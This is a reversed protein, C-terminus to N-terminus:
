GWFHWILPTAILIILLELPLGMRWYDSFRYGGPGMVLLNNKHGIPTLFACSAAVAVAMLFADPSAGTAQAVTVAIPAMVAATAVNNMADSLTMTVVFVLVLLWFPELAGTLGTLGYAIWEAASVGDVVVSQLADGLPLMCGLLIIIARDVSDYVRRIDIRGLFLLIAVTAAFAIQIEVWGLATAAIASTFLFLPLRDPPRGTQSLRLDRDALPLLGIEKLALALSEESGQLLLTDGVQLPVHAVRERFVQGQRALGLLNIAFRQRMLLGRASQGEAVSGPSVVVEMVNADSGNLYEDVFDRSGAIAFGTAKLWGELAIPGARVVLLDDAQVRESRLNGSLRRSGRRIGVIRIEGEALLELENIATDLATADSVALIETIYDKMEFALGREDATRGQPILRWGILVLFLLGALAVPLGVWAFDFMGFAEADTLNSRLSAIILNPPTGIQTVLGGLITGFSLPMLVKAPEPSARLALPMLLVLAGVNNIFASLFTGIGTLALMFLLPRHRLKVLQNSLGDLIGSEQVAKSIVLILAVTIVAKDGFSAFAKGQEVLGLAVAVLLTTLAVLDYRWRGWVFLAMALAILGFIHARPDLIWDMALSCLPQQRSVFAGQLTRALRGQGESCEAPM